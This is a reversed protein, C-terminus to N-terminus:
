EAAAPQGMAMIRASRLPKLVFLAMGVVAFNILATVVFV